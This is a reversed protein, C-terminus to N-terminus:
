RLNAKMCEIVAPDVNAQQAVSIDQASFKSNTTKIQDVLTDAKVGASSLEKIEDVTLQNGAMTDTPETILPNRTTHGSPGPTEVALGKSECALLSTKAALNGQEAAKRYWVVAEAYNRAVGRGNYYCLGLHYQAVANGQEASLRYWKVAETYDRAVGHSNYYCGGLNDQAFANGQGAARRYWAVAAAYNQAVGLGKSYCVGLRNQAAAYGQKASLYYWKVAEEYNRVVGRGNAYCSGLTFQATANGQEAKQRIIHVQHNEVPTPAVAVPASPVVVVGRNQEVVCGAVQMLGICAFAFGITRRVKKMPNERKRLSVQM